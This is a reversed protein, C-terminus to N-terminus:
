KYTKTAGMNHWNDIVNKAISTVILISIAM